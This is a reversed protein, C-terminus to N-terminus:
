ILEWTHVPENSHMHACYKRLMETLAQKRNLGRRELASVTRTQWAAGNIGSKARAEIVGLYRDRVQPAVGWRRLGEHAMPLLYRLTLEDATIEGVGPWYLKASTGHRAGSLFNDHAGREGARQEAANLSARVDEELELAASGPLARPPVNMEINYAGLETQFAPDAISALVETNTMAPQYNGDVLNFEIELGTLPREFDFRSEALMTEFVDLCNQVKTRYARRHEGTFQTRAVEDGM